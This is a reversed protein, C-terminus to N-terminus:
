MYANDDLLDGVFDEPDLLAGDHSRLDGFDPVRGILRHSVSLYLFRKKLGPSSECRPRASWSASHQKRTTLRATKQKPNCRTPM